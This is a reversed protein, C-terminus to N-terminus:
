QESTARKYSRFGSTSTETTNLKLNTGPNM